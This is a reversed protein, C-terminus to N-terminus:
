IRVNPVKIGVVGRGVHTVRKRVTRDKIALKLRGHPSACFPVLHLVVAPWDTRCSKLDGSHALSRIEKKGIIACSFALIKGAVLYGGARVMGSASSGSFLNKRGKLEDGVWKDASEVRCGVPPSALIM